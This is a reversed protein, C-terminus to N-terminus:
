VEATKAGPKDKKREIRSVLLTLERVEEAIGFRRDDDATGFGRFPGGGQTGFRRRQRKCTSRAVQEIAGRILRIVEFRNRRLRVVDSRDEVRGSRGPLRLTRHQGM